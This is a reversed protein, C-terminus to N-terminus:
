FNAYDFVPVLQFPAVCTGVGIISGGNATLMPNLANSSCHRLGETPTNAFGGDVGFWAINSSNWNIIPSTVWTGNNITRYGGYTAGSVHSPMFVAITSNNTVTLGSYIGTPLPRITYIGTTLNLTALQNNAIGYAIPSNTAICEIDQVPSPVGTATKTKAIFVGTGTSLNIRFLSNSALDSNNGTTIYTFSQVGVALGIANKLLLSGTVGPVGTVMISNCLRFAARYCDSPPPEPGTFNEELTTTYIQAAGTSPLNSLVYKSANETHPLPPPPPALIDIQDNPNNYKLGESVVQSTKPSAVKLQESQVMTDAESVKEKNCATLFYAASTVLLFSIFVKFVKKM